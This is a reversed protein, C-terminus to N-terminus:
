QQLEQKLHKPHKHIPIKHIWLKLAQWYIAIIVKATMFPFNLLIKTMSLHTIPKRTMRMGANFVKVDDEFNDMNVSLHNGPTSLSWDYRQHMAMYPSVHFKKDFTFRFTEEHQDVAQCDLVYCHTEGWPTNHVEAVIFELRSDTKDWCYYFSVPNMCYGFYRLHTLLRIAGQHDKGTENRILDRISQKLTNNQEGMHDQRRFWALAPREASWLLFPRFLEPLEDLDLYMMFLGYNFGHAKPQFRHHSVRGSYICSKM